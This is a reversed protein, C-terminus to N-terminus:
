PVDMRRLRRVSLLLFGGFVLACTTIAVGLSLHSGAAFRREDLGHMLAIAYHRISLLRVGSVFGSFFGEWLVIYLLGLGIAQTTVLGLYVFASAYLAVGVIASVTVAVTAQWDGLFAVHSTVFASAGIFPGAITITALLKPVAIRWRSIPSLTLNALTRDEVENAFAAGGIALVVLPAISGSLMVSLVAVEFQAVSAGDDDALMLLTILVPMAALVTMILLRWKGSLQRLTLLYVSGM